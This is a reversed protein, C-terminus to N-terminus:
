SPQKSPIGPFFVVASFIALCVMVTETDASPNTHKIYLFVAINLVSAFLTYFIPKGRRRNM